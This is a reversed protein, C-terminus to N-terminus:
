PKPHYRAPGAKLTQDELEKAAKVSRLGDFRETALRRQEVAHAEAEVQKSKAAAKRAERSKRLVEAQEAQEGAKTYRRLSFNFAVNSLLEDFKLKL